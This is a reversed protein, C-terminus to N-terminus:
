AFAMELSTMPQFTQFIFRGLGNENEWEEVPKDIIFLIEGRDPLQGDLVGYKDRCSVGAMIELIEILDINDFNVLIQTEGRWNRTWRDRLWDIAAEESLECIFGDRLMSRDERDSIVSLTAPQPKM